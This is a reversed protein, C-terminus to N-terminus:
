ACLLLNPIFIFTTITIIKWSLFREKKWLWLQPLHLHTCGSRCPLKLLKLYHYFIEYLTVKIVKITLKKWFKNEVNWQQYFHCSCIKHSVVGHLGVMVSRMRLCVLCPLDKDDHRHISSQTTSPSSLKTLLETHTYLCNQQCSPQCTVVNKDTHKHNKDGGHTFIIGNSLDWVVKMILSETQAWLANEKQSMAQTMAANM